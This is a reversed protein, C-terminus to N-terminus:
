TAMSGSSLTGTCDLVGRYTMIITMKQTCFKVVVYGQELDITNDVELPRESQELVRFSVSRGLVEIILARKWSAWLAKFKEPSLEM